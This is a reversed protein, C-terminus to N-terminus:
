QSVFIGKKSRAVEIGLFYKLRRLEKIEFDKELCQKMAKKEELDNGILIIDDLYILLAIVGGSALHKVFLTHDSHSQRYSVTIMAKVFRGFSTRPSQKLGYLAKKLKCVKKGKLHMNFSPPLDMYIEEKLEEHLFVNKM